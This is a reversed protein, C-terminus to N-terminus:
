RERGEREWNEGLAGLYCRSACFDEIVLASLLNREYIEGSPSRFYVQWASIPETIQGNVM